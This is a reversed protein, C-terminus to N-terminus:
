PWDPAPQNVLPGLRRLYDARDITVAGLSALHNTSWQVDILGGAQIRALGMLAVKSADRVRHFM